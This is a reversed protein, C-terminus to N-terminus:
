PTDLVDKVVSMYLGTNFITIIFLTVSQKKKVPVKYWNKNSQISILYEGKVAIDGSKLM